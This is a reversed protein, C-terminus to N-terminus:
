SNKLIFLGFHQAPLNLIDVFLCSMSELMLGHLINILSYAAGLSSRQEYPFGSSQKILVTRAVCPRGDHRWEPTLSAGGGTGIYDEGAGLSPM